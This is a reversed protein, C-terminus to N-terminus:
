RTIANGFNAYPDYACAEREHRREPLRNEVLVLGAVRRIGLRLKFHHARLLVRAVRRVVASGDCVLVLVIAVLPVKDRSLGIDRSIDMAAIFIGLAAKAVRLDDSGDFHALVVLSLVHYWKM